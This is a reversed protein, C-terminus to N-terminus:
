GLINVFVEPQSTKRFNEQKGSEQIILLLAICLLLLMIKQQQIVVCIMRNKENGCKKM